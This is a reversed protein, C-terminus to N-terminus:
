EVDVEFLAVESWACLCHVTAARRAANCPYDCMVVHQHRRACQSALLGTCVGTGHRCPMPGPSLPTPIAWRSCHPALLNTSAMCGNGNTYKCAASWHNPPQSHM